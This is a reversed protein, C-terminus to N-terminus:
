RGRKSHNRSELPTSSRSLHPSFFARSVNYSIPTMRITLTKVMGVSLEKGLLFFRGTTAQELTGRELSEAVVSIGEMMTVGAPVLLYVTFCM